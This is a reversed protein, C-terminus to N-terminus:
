DFRVQRDALFEKSMKGWQQRFEFLNDKAQENELEYRAWAGFLIKLTDAAKRIREELEEKTEDSVEPNLINILQSFLPHKENFVLATVGGEM